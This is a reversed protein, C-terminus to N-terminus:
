GATGTWFKWALLWPVLGHKLFFTSPSENVQNNKVNIYYTHRVVHLICNNWRVVFYTCQWLVYINWNSTSVKEQEVAKEWRWKREDSIHCYTWVKKKKKKKASLSKKGLEV